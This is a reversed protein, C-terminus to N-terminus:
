YTNFINDIYVPKKTDKIKQLAENFINHSTGNEFEASTSKDAKHLLERLMDSTGNKCNYLMTDIIIKEM